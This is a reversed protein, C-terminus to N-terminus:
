LMLGWKQPPLQLAPFLQTLLNKKKLNVSSDMFLRYFSNINLDNLLSYLRKQFFFFWRNFFSLPHTKYFLPSSNKKTASFLLNDKIYKSRKSRM